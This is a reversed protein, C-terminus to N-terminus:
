NNAVRTEDPDQQSIMEIKFLKGEVDIRSLQDLKYRYTNVRGSSNPKHYTANGAPSINLFSGTEESYAVRIDRPEEFLLMISSYHIPQKVTKELKGDELFEYYQGRKRTQTHTRLKGNVRTVFDSEILDDHLFVVKTKYTMEVKGIITTTIATFNEYVTYEGDTKRVAELFGVPKHHHMVDFRITTSDTHGGGTSFMLAFLIFLTNM